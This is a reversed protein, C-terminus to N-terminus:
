TLRSSPVLTLAVVLLRSRASRRRWSMRSKLAACEQSRSTTIQHAEVSIKMPVRGAWGLRSAKSAAISASRRSADRGGHEVGVRRELFAHGEGVARGVEGDVDRRM